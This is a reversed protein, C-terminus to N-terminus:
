SYGLATMTQEFLPALEPSLSFIRNNQRSNLTKKAYYVMKEDFPLECFDLLQRLSNEPQAVLEEYKLLYVVEPFQEVLKLGEQMTLIWEVAAMHTHNSYGEIIKLNHKFVSNTAAIQEILLHWKRNNLGWWDHTDNQVNTGLRKSWGDISQCTDWGNRALFIFKADPFIQRVFPVRFILEPYKDVLRSSAVATLYAGFLRHATRKISDTANEAELRYDAKGQSYSGILDEEPYITHWLAKPENLFGVEKHMSLVIGLITTGSRGTGIIFIPKKVKKLQPLGQAIAFLKFILPNIWQGKTTLPRGEFLGYGILRSLAKTPKTKIYLSDLQAVM